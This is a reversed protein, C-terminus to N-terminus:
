RGWWPASGPASSARASTPSACVPGTRSSRAAPSGSATFGVGAGLMVGMADALGQDRIALRAVGLGGAMGLATAGATTAQGLDDPSFWRSSVLGGVGGLVAGALLGGTLRAQDVETAPAHAGAELALAWTGAGYLAGKVTM